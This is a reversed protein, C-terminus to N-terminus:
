PVEASYILRKLEPAYVGFTARMSPDRNFEAVGACGNSSGFKARLWGQAAGTTDPRPAPLCSADSAASGLNISVDVSGAPVRATHATPAELTLTGNGNVMSIAKGNADPVVATHWDSTSAGKADLYGGLSVAALPVRTCNDLSNLVWAKSTWYQAQVPATLARKETGFANTIRLRGSRLQVTGEVAGLSSVGDADVARIGVAAPATLKSTFAFVPSTVTAVGALFNGAPVTASGPAFSGLSANTTASLTVQKSLAPTTAATGNYNLTIGNGANRATITVRFPQESYTISGCGQTVGVDFHHPVSRLAAGTSGTTGSASLGSALYSGSALTSTIDGSGVETWALDSVTAVGNVFSTLAATAGVGTGTFTGASAGAGTPSARTWSLRVGEPSTERGFNPTVNGEANVASVTVAFPSGAGVVTTPSGTLTFAAPAVVVSGTGTMNLGSAQDSGALSLNLTLKGVDSYILSPTAVGSGNFSLSLLQGTGDCAASAAGSTNLAVGNVVPSRQGSTPNSYSCAVAVTKVVNGFAPVCATSTASKQVAAISLTQSTGSTHAPVAIDFGSDAVTFACSPSGFNCTSGSSATPSATQAGVTVKGATVPQFSVTTSSAGAPINFGAGAPFNVTIGTGAATLNGSVGGTYLTSCGSDACAVLTVTNPACTLGTGTGHQVAIHDFSRCSPPVPSGSICSKGCTGAAGCCAGAVLTPSNFDMTSSGTSRACQLIRSDTGSSVTTAATVNGNITSHTSIYVYSGTSTVDGFITTYDDIKAWSAATVNGGVSNGDNIFVTSTQATISGGVVGNDYMSVYTKATLSGTVRADSHIDIYTGGALLSGTVSTGHGTDIYSTRSTIDGGISSHSGTDVYTQATIPGGVTTYGGLNVYTGNATISGTVTSHSATDVQLQTSTINGTINAYHGTFVYSQASVNGNITVHDSFSVYTNLATVPGGLVNYDGGSVHGVRSEGLVRNYSNLLLGGSASNASGVTTYNSSTGSSLTITGSTTNVSGTVRSGQGINLYGTTTSLSGGYNVAGSSAVNGATINANFTAGTSAFMTGSVTVKMNAAAGSANVQSGKIDLNGTVRVDASGVVNVTDAAALTVTTCSYTGSGTSVCAVPLAGPFTYVAAWAPSAMGLALAAWAQWATLRARPRAAPTRAM